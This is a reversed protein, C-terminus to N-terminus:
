SIPTGHQHPLLNLVISTISLLTVAVISCIAICTPRIFPAKPLVKFHYDDPIYDDKLLQDDEEEEEVEEMNDERISRSRGGPSSIPRQVLIMRKRKRSLIYLLMPVIYNIIGNIILSAWNIVKLVYSGPYFVVSLIWPFIVAWWNASVKGCLGSEILNYKIIISFVPLSSLFAVLPFIYVCVQSIKHLVGDTQEVIVVLLDQDNRFRFAAGGVVGIAIYFITAIAVSFWISKKIPVNSRRENCWSPVTTIFAYNFIISGLVEYQDTTATPIRTFDLGVWFCSYFWEIFILILTGFAVKQVIINDELNFLGMPITVALTILYGLSLVFSPGFPSVGTPLDSVSVFGFHPYFELAFTKKFIAVIAIDVTQASIVVSTIFLALLSGIFLLVTIVYGWKPLFEKAVGSFEVRGQFRENGPVKEMASCLMVAALCSIFAVAIICVILSVWGSQQFLLPITILGPGTISNTLLTIGGFFSIDKGGGIAQNDAPNAPNEAPETENIPSNPRGDNLSGYNGSRETSNKM